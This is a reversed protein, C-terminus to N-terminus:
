CFQAILEKAVNIKTVEEFGKWGPIGNVEILYPRGSEKENLIIDVGAYDLNLTKSAKLAIRELNPSVKISEAKAGRALNTKWDKGKRKIAGLVKDGLVFVRIDEQKHEIFEQLYLVFNNYDWSKFIRYASDEDKVRVMGKGLSGFLPKVILDKEQKFFDLAQEADEAVFTKPVTLDAAALVSSTYYKNVTQEIAFASNIVRQGLGELRRLIDMRLVIQELSGRPIIRVLLLKYDALKVKKKLSKKGNAKFRTKVIGKIEEKGKLESELSTIPIQDVEFGQKLGAEALDFVHGSDSSALIAIKKM